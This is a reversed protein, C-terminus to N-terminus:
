LGRISFLVDGEERTRTDHGKYKKLGDPNSKEDYYGWNWGTMAETPVVFDRGKALRIPAKLAQLAWPVIEDELEAPYQFLISDHVQILLQVRDARWLNLIGTNIEDATMSQPSFAVAERLTADDPIRGFFYRRRGFLTTLSSFHKLQYDVNAHYKPILPFGRFYGAQFNRVLDVPFKTHAAMTVPKGLFNTGHGLVKSGDRYSKGRYFIQDAIQRDTRADLGWGLDPFVMKCVQTHLDGAECADLYRGAEAEGFEHVFTEWILAGLNRSDAQELDMNCFKMGKDAVFVSRLKSTVNQLNTGTGYDSESSAFRGTNTGAININTRMRGDPDIGTRLFGLSKGLDRMALVHAIIPEAIFYSSLEELQKRGAAPAMIGKSNRKRKVPLGLTTYLFHVMQVPSRWNIRGCGIGDECMANFQSELQALKTEFDKIVQARKNQNVLLGRMTMELVPAQLSKSFEYVNSAVNDIQSALSQRIEETVCVDLGNYVWYAEDASLAAMAAPTTLTSTDIIKM